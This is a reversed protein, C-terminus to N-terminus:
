RGTAMSTPVVQRVADLRPHLEFAGLTIELVSLYYEEDIMYLSEACQRAARGFRGMCRSCPVKICYPDIVKRPGSRIGDQNQRLRDWIRRLAPRTESAREAAEAFTGAVQYAVAWEDGRFRSGADVRYLRVSASHVNAAATEGGSGRTLDDSDVM